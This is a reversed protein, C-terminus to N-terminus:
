QRYQIWPGGERVGDSSNDAFDVAYTSDYSWDEESKGFLMVLEDATFACLAEYPFVGSFGTKFAEIQRRIGKGITFDVVLDVYEDVNYITVEIDRGGPQDNALAGATFVKLEIDDYGPLMFNMALDEVATDDMRIAEIKRMKVLESVTQDGQIEHRLDVFRQLFGLSDSLRKDVARLSLISPREDEDFEALRFFLPNFHIDIIRSDLMSRAVFKGLGEFM